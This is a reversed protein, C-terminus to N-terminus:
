AASRYVGIPQGQLETNEILEWGSRELLNRATNTGCYVNPFGLSRAKTVLAQLLFAGIGNGRRHPVVFGAAAWPGLQVHSPISETKLAGVGVAEEAEFVLIALPLIRESSAFTNVDREVDGPGGPGYWTPWETVFWTKVTNLLDPRHALAVASLPSHM